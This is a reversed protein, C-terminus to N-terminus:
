VADTLVQLSSGHGRSNSGLIQDVGLAHGIQQAQAVPIGHAAVLLAVRLHWTGDDVETSAPRPEPQPGLYFRPRPHGAARLRPLVSQTSTGVIAISAAIVSWDTASNAEVSM